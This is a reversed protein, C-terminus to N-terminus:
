QIPTVGEKATLRQDLLGLAPDDHLGHIQQTIVGHNQAVLVEPQAEIHQTLAVLVVLKIKPM